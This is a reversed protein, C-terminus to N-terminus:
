WLIFINCKEQTLSASSSYIQHSMGWMSIYIPLNPGPYACGWTQKAGNAQEMFLGWGSGCMELSRSSKWFGGSPPGPKAVIEMVGMIAPDVAASAGLGLRGPDVSTRSKPFYLVQVPM